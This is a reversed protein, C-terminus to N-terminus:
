TSNAPSASSSSAGNTPSMSLKGLEDIDEDTMGSLRQAVGFLKDTVDARVSGLQEVDADSFVRQGHEDITCYAVLKARINKATFQRKKGKGEWCGSEFADREHGTMGRVSVTIGLAPLAVQETPVKTAGLIADRIGM